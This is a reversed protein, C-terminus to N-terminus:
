VSGNGAIHESIQFVSSANAIAIAAKVERIWGGYPATEAGIARVESLDEARDTSGPARLPSRVGQRIIISLNVATGLLRRPLSTPESAESSPFASLRAM